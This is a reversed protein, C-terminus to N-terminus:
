LHRALIQRGVSCMHIDFFCLFTEMHIDIVGSAECFEIMHSSWYKVVMLVAIFKSCVDKCM